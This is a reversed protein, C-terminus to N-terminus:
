SVKHRDQVDRMHVHSLPTTIFNRVEASFSIDIYKGKYNRVFDLFAKEWAKAKQNEREDVHNNVVFTVILATASIYDNGGNENEPLPLPSSFSPPLSHSLSLSLFLSLPPSIFLSLFFLLLPNSNM